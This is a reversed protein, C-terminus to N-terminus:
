RVITPLYLWDTPLIKTLRYVGGGFITAEGLITNATSTRQEGAQTVLGGPSGLYIM